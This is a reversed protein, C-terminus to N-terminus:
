APTIKGYTTDSGLVLKRAERMHQRDHLEPLGEKEIEKLIQSIASQSAAPVKRRFTELKRLKAEREAMAIAIIALFKLRSSCAICIGYHEAEWFLRLILLM